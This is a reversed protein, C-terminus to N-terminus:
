DKNIEKSFNKASSKFAAIYKSFGRKLEELSDSVTEALGKTPHKDDVYYLMLSAIVYVTLLVWVGTVITGIAYIFRCLNVNYGLEKSITAIVGTILKNERDKKM